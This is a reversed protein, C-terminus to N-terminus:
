GAPGLGIGVGRAGISAKNLPEEEGTSFQQVASIRLSV